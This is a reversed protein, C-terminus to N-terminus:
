LWRTDMPPHHGFALNEFAGNLTSLSRQGQEGHEQTDDRTVYNRQIQKQARRRKQQTENHEAQQRDCQQRKGGKRQIQLIEAFTHM